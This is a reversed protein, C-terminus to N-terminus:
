YMRRPDIQVRILPRAGDNDARHECKQLKATVASAMDLKLMWGEAMIPNGKLACLFSASCTSLHSLGLVWRPGALPMPVHIEDRTSSIQTKVQEYINTPHVHHIDIVTHPQKLTHVQQAMGFTLISESLSHSQIVKDQTGCILRDLLEGFEALHHQDAVYEATSESAQQDDKSIFRSNLDGKAEPAEWDAWWQGLLPTHRSAIHNPKLLLRLACIIQLILTPIRIHPFPSGSLAILHLSETHTFM